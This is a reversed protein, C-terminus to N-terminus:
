RVAPALVSLGGAVARIEIRRAAGTLVEGDAHVPLPVESTIQLAAARCLHVEAATGHRGRLVRPILQLVRGPALGEILCVDLLGDVASAEPTLFFGGGSCIGNGATILFLPGSYRLGGAEAVVQVVPPRWCRLTRLAAALYGALGPLYKLAAAAEAVRADFGVGVANVFPTEAGGEDGEWRVLGYDVAKPRTRALAEVAAPVSRPMGLMKVFDNGTGMPLVGLHVEAGSAVVGRVVEQVTGDGGVAVVVEGGEAAQRALAAAHGPGETLLLTYDLGAAELVGELRKRRRGARGHGAAPNMIFAYRMLHPMIIGPSLLDASLYPMRPNMPIVLGPAGVRGAHAYRPTPESREGHITFPAHYITSEGHVIGWRRVESESSPVGLESSRVRFEVRGM